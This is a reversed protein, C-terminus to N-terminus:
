FSDWIIKKIEKLVEDYSKEANIEHLVSNEFKLNSLTSTKYNLYEYDTNEEPKRQMSVEASINLRFIIDPYITNVIGMLNREKQELRKIYKSNMLQSYKKLKLGDNMDTQQLQPYRDVISVGGNLRYKNMKIIKKRNSKVVSFIEIVSLFKKIYSLPNKFLSIKKSVSSSENRYNNINRNKYNTKLLGITKALFPKNGDGTGMYVRRNEVKGKTLWTTIDKNLTSKGSGDVGVFCIIKGGTVTTKRDILFLGLKNKGRNYKKIVKYVISLLFAKIPNMRRDNKLEKRISRSLIRFNKSNIFSKNIISLLIEVTENTFMSNATRKVDSLDVNKQLYEYEEQLSYHTKYLNFISKIRDRLKSKVVIRTLLLLIEVSPKSVYINYEDNKLSTELVIDSWPLIYDKVFQKGTALQYHIHFHFIVGIDEDFVYWNEVGPYNGIGVPEFKKCNFTTLIADCQAKNEPSILIDFDSNGIYNKKLHQNSKFHCYNVGNKEFENLIENIKEM